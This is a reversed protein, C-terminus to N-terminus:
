RDEDWREHSRSTGQDNWREYGRGSEPGDRYYRGDSEYATVERLGQYDRSYHDFYSDRYPDYYLVVPRFEHHKWWGRGRHMREVMVVRPPPHRDLILVRRPQPYVVVPAYAPPYYRDGVIVHGALPGGGILIDASVHQAYAPRAAFTLALALSGVALPAKM